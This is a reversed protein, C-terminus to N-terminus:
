KQAPKEGREGKFDGKKHAKKKFDKRKDAKMNSVNAKYQALQEPTLIKELGAMYDERQKQVTEKTAKKIAERQAKNESRLAEIQQQQEASLNIGEFANLRDKHARKEAKRGEKKCDKKEKCCEKQQPATCNTENQAFAGITSIALAGMVLALVKKRM